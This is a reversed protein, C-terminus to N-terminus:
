QEDSLLVDHRVEHSRHGSHPPAEGERVLQSLVAVLVAIAAAAVAGARTLVATFRKRRVGM